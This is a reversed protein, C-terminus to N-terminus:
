SAPIHSMDPFPSDNEKEHTIDRLFGNFVTTEDSTIKEPQGLDRLWIIQDAATKIRYEIEYENGEKEAQKLTKHVRKKDARFIIEDLGPTDTLIEERTYGCIEGIKLSIFTFDRQNKFRCQYAIGPMKELLSFLKDDM